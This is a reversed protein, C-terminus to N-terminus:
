TLKFSLYVAVAVAIVPVITCIIDTVTYKNM